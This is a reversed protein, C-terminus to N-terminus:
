EDMKWGVVVCGVNEASCGHGRLTRELRLELRGGLQRAPRLLVKRSRRVGGTRTGGDEGKDECDEGGCWGDRSKV